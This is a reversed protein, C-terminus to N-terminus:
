SDSIHDSAIRAAKQVHSPPEDSFRRAKTHKYPNNICDNTATIGIAGIPTKTNNFIPAAISSMGPYFEGVSYAFGLERITELREELVNLETITQDTIAPLGFSGILANIREDPMYALIAQGYATCHMYTERGVETKLDNIEDGSSRYLWVLKDDEKVAVHAIADTEAALNDVNKEVTDHLSHEQLSLDGLRAVRLGLRLGEEERIIYRDQQLTKLHYHVTSRSCDVKAAIESVSPRDTEAIIEIINFATKVSKITKGEKTNSEM